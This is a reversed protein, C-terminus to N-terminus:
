GVHLRTCVWTLWVSSLYWARSWARSPSGTKWKKFKWTLIHLFISPFERYHHDFRSYTLYLQNRPCILQLIRHENHHLWVHTVHFSVSWPRPICGHLFLTIDFEYFYDMIWFFKLTFATQGVTISVSKTRFYLSIDASLACPLNWLGLIKNKKQNVIQDIKQDMLTWATIALVFGITPGSSGSGCTSSTDPTTANKHPGSELNILPQRMGM